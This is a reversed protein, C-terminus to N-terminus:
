LPQIPKSTATASTMPAVWIHGFNDSGICTNGLFVGYPAGNLTLELDKTPTGTLADFCHIVGQLITDNKGTEANPIIVQKEQSRSVYVVGGTMTATRANTHCIPSALYAQSAHVRDLMWLNKVGIGNVKAYTQGDTVAWAGMATMVAM